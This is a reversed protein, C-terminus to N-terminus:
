DGAEAAAERECGGDDVRSLRGETLRPMKAPAGAQRKWTRAARSRDTVAAQAWRGKGLPTTM